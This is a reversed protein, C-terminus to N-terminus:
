ASQREALYASRLAQRARTALSSIANPTMSTGRALEAPSYRDVEILWLISRWRPPLSELAAGIRESEHQAPVASLQQEWVDPDDIVVTRGRTRSHRYALRKVTSLTYGVFSDQPGQGARVARLVLYFTEQVLDDAAHADRVIRYAARRALPAVQRYLMGFAADDGRQARDLLLASEQDRGTIM